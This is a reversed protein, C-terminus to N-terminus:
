YLCSSLYKTRIDKKSSIAKKCEEREQNGVLAQLMIYIKGFLKRSMEMFDRQLDHQSLVM